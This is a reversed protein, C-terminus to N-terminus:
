NITYSCINGDDMVLDVAVPYKEHKRYTQNIPNSICKVHNNECAEAGEKKSFFEGCLTCQYSVVEKAMLFNV